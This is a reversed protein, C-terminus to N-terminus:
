AEHTADQGSVTGRVYRECAYVLRQPINIQSVHGRGMRVTCSLTWEFAGGVWVCTQRYLKCLMGCGGAVM